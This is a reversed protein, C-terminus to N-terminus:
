RNVFDMLEAEMRHQQTFSVTGPFKRAPDMCKRYFNLQLSSKAKENMVFPLSQNEDGVGVYCMLNENFVIPGLAQDGRCVPVEDNCVLQFKNCNLLTKCTAMYNTAIVVNAAEIVANDLNKVVRRWQGKDVERGEGFLNGNKKIEDNVRLFIVADDYSSHEPMKIIELALEERKTSLDHQRHLNNVLGFDERTTDFM